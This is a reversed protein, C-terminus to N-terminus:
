VSTQFPLHVYSLGWMHQVILVQSHNIWVLSYHLCVNKALLRQNPHTRSVVFRHEHWFLYRDRKATLNVISSQVSTLLQWRKVPHKCHKLATGYDSLKLQCDLSSPNITCPLIFNKFFTTGKKQWKRGGWNHQGKFYPSTQPFDSFICTQSVLLAPFLSSTLFFCLCDFLLAVKHNIFVDLINRFCESNDQESM